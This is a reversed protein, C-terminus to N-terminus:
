EEWRIRVKIISVIYAALSVLLMILLYESIKDFSNFLICNRYASSIVNGPSFRTLFMFVKSTIDKLPIFVGGFIIQYYMVIILVINASKKNFFATMFGACAAILLSQGILIAGLNIISVGKFAYGVVRLTVIYVIGYVFTQVFFATLNLNFMTTKKMPTSMLRRFTGNELDLHHGATCGMIMMIVMYTMLAAAQNEYSSLTREGKILNLKIGRIGTVRNISAIVENYLKEKDIVELAEIKNSITISKTLHKGYQEVIAKIILENTRSVREKEDVRISVDRLNNISGQYGNPITIFYQGNETVKFLDKIGESRFMQTFGKSAESNDEDIITINIKDMSTEPKFIDKQFYGMATSLLLPFIAYMLLVQKWQVIIARLSLYITAKYRM